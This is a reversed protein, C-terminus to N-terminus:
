YMEENKIYHQKTHSRNSFNDTSLLPYNGKTEPNLSGGPLLFFKSTRLSSVLDPYFGEQARWLLATCTTLSCFAPSPMLWCILKCIFPLCLLTKLFDVCTSPFLQMTLSSHHHSLFFKRTVMPFSHSKLHLKALGCISHPQLCFLLPSPADQWFLILIKTKLGRTRALVACSM